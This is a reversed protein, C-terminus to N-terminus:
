TTGGITFKDSITHCMHDAAILCAVLVAKNGSLKLNRERLKEKLVTMTLDNYGEQAGIVFPWALRLREEVDPFPDIRDQAKIQRKKELLFSQWNLRCDLLDSLVDRLDSTLCRSALGFIQLPYACTEVSSDQKSRSACPLRTAPAWSCTYECVIVTWTRCSPM